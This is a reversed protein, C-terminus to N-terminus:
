IGISYKYNYKRRRKFIRIIRPLFIVLPILLLLKEPIELTDAVPDTTNDGSLTVYEVHIIGKGGGQGSGAAGGSADGGVNTLADGGGGGAGTSSLGGATAGNNGAGGAGGNAGGSAGGGGGATTISNGLTVTDARVFISGGSGGGGGAGPSGGGGAGYSGADVATVGVSGTSGSGGDSSMTGAVSISNAWIIIVGGGAGGAGGVGGAGGAPKAGGGGNGGAGGSVGAAASVGGSGASGASGGGFGLGDVHVDGGSDITVAGTARFAIIGGTTGNWASTTLTDGSNVDVTTWQPMVVVQAGTAQYINTLDVACDIYDNLVVASVDCTEWNGAGAGTMQIVLVDDGAVVTATAGVQILSADAEGSGSTANIAIYNFSTSDTGSVNKAGDHEDGLGIDAQVPAARKALTYINISISLLIVLVLKGAWKVRKKKVKFRDFRNNASALALY